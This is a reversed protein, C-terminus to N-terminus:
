KEALGILELRVAVHIVDPESHIVTATPRVIGYRTPLVKLIGVNDGEPIEREVKILRENTATKYTGIIRTVYRLEVSKGELLLFGAVTVKEGILFRM